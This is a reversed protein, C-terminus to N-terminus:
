DLFEEGKIYGLPENGHGCSGAVSGELAIETIDKKMTNEWRRRPRGLHRKGEPKWGFNTCM